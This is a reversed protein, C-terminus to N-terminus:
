CRVSTVEVNSVCLGREQVVVEGVGLVLALEDESEVVGVGALLLLLELVRDDLVASEEADLRVLDRVSAVPEVLQVLASDLHDLVTQGIGIVSRLLLHTGLTHIADGALAALHAGLLGQGPKLLHLLAGLLACPPADACLHRDVVGVLGHAVGDNVSAVGLVVVASAGLPLHVRGVVEAAGDDVRDLADCVSQTGGLVVIAIGLVLPEDLLELEALNVVPAESTQVKDACDQGLTLEGLDNVSAVDPAPVVRAHGGHTTDAAATGDDRGELLEDQLLTRGLVNDVEVPVREPGGVLLVDLRGGGAVDGDVVVSLDRYGDNTCALSDDGLVLGLVGFVVEAVLLDDEALVDNHLLGISLGEGLVLLDGQHVPAVGDDALDRVRDVREGLVAELGDGAELELEVQLAVDLLGGLLDGPQGLVLLEDGDLEDVEVVEDGLVLELGLVGELVEEVLVCLGPDLSDSVAVGSLQLDVIDDLKVALAEEPDVLRKGM